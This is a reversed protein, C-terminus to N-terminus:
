RLEVLEFKGVTVCDWVRQALDMLEDDSLQMRAQIRRVRNLFRGPIDKGRHKCQYFFTLAMADELSLRM